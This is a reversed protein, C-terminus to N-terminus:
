DIQITTTYKTYMVSMTTLGDFMIYIKKKFPQISSRINLPKFKKNM